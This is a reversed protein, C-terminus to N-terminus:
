GSVLIPSPENGGIVKMTARFDTAGDSRKTAKGKWRFGVDSLSSFHLTVFGFMPGAGDTYQVNGLLDVGIDGSDSTAALASYAAPGEHLLRGEPWTKGEDESVRVTM